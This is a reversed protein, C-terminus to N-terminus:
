QPIAPVVAFARAPFGTGNQPKPWTAVIMAGAEPVQDLNAMLEIQWRDEQLWYLECELLGQDISTGPDTDTTEHGIALVAREHRLFKLAELSWGPCNNNGASDKGYLDNTGWRKHWDSRLAVFSNRPIQGNRQEWDKIDAVTAAHNPNERVKDVLNLVALPLIMEDVPLQDLTRANNVFHIPPDVHTGWQGVISYRDVTFGDNDISFIRSTEQDPLMSFKPQGPFFAHTLDVFRYNTSRLRNALEWLEHRPTSDPSM